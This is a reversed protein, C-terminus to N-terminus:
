KKVELNKQELKSYVSTALLIASDITPNKGDALLGGLIAATLSLIAASKDPRVLAAKVLADEGKAIMYLKCMEFFEGEDIFIKQNSSPREVNVPTYGISSAAMATGGADTALIIYSVSGDKKYIIKTM